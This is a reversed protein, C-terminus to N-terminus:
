TLPSFLATSMAMVSLVAVATVSVVGSVWAVSPSPVSVASILSAMPRPM